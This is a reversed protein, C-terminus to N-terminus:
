HNHASLINPPHITTSTVCSLTLARREQEVMSIKMSLTTETQKTALTEATTGRLDLEPDPVKAAEEDEERRRHFADAYLPIVTTELKKTKYM